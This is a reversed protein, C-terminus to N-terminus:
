SIIQVIGRTDDRISLYLVTYKGGLISNGALFTIIWEQFLVPFLMDGDSFNMRKTYGDIVSTTLTTDLEM